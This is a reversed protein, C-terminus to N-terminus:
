FSKWRMLRVSLDCCDCGVRQGLATRMPGMLSALGEKRGAKRAAKGGTNTHVFSAVAVCLWLLLWAMSLQGFDVLLLMNGESSRTLTLKDNGILQQLQLIEEEERM